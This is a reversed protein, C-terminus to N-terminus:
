FEINSINSFKIILGNKLYICEHTIKKVNDVSTIYKGGNKKADAVFHTVAVNINNKINAKIYNLKANLIEKLNDSLIRKKETIRSTEKIVESYGTLASFPAFQAARAEISMRQHNKLEPPELNIIDDYKSM